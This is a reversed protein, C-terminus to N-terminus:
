SDNGVMEEVRKKNSQQKHPLFYITIEDILISRSGCLNFRLDHGTMYLVLIDM